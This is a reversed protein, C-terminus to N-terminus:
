KSPHKKIPEFELSVSNMCYRYNTPPPGDEFRHGLHSDCRGCLVEERLMDYSVDTQYRVSKESLTQYFSPWGCSSAFKADSQFLANGCVACYYTGVGEFDNYKGTFATETAKLRSVAYLEKPLIKGWETNSIQLKKTDTRSYYPNKMSINHRTSLPTKTTNSIQTISKQGCCVLFSILSFFGFFLFKRHTM